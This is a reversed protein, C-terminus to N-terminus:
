REPRKPQPAGIAQQAVDTPLIVTGVSENSPCHPARGHDEKLRRLKSQVERGTGDLADPIREDRATIHLVPVVAVSEEERASDGEHEVGVDPGRLGQSRRVASEQHLSALASLEVDRLLHLLLTHKLM